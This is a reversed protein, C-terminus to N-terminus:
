SATGYPHFARKQNNFTEHDAAPHDSSIVYLFVGGRRDTRVTGPKLKSTVFIATPGGRRRHYRYFRPSCTLDWCSPVLLTIFIGLQAARLLFSQPQRDLPWLRDHRRDGPFDFAPLYWAERGPVFLLVFRRQQYRDPRSIGPMLNVLLMGFSIPLLLLPEFQRGIALYILVCAIAIM